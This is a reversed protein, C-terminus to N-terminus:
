DLAKGARKIERALEDFIMCGQRLGMNVQFWDTMEEVVVSSQVGNYLSKLVRLMKGKIGVQTLRKWITERPITDYAKKLDL